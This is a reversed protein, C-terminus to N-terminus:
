PKKAYTTPSGTVSVGTLPSTSTSSTITTGVTGCVATHVHTNLRSVVSDIATNLDSRTVVKDCDAVDEAGLLIPQGAKPTIVIAGDKRLLIRQGSRAWILVEEPEAEPEDTTYEAVCVRNSSGGQVALVVCETGEPPESVWGYLQARKATINQEPEDPAQQYGSFSYYGKAARGVLILKRVLRAAYTKIDVAM